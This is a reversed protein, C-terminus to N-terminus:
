GTVTGPAPCGGPMQISVSQNVSTMRFSLTISYIEGGGADNRMKATVDYRLVYGGDKAVWVEGTNSEVQAGSGAGLGEITFTYHDAAIGAVDESGVLESNGEPIVIDFVGSLVTGIDSEFPNSAKSTYEEGDFSCSMDGSRWTETTSSSPDSDASASSNTMKMYRLGAESDSSGVGTMESHDADTPGVTAATLTWEYSDLSSLGQLIPTSLSGSSAGGGGGGGGGGDGRVMYGAVGGLLLAAVAGIAMKQKATLGQKAVPIHAVGPVAQQQAYQPQQAVQPQAVQAQAPSQPASNPADVFTQGNISVFESWGNGDWWRQQAHGMPDPYWGSPNNTM